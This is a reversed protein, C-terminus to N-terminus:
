AFVGAAAAPIAVAGAVPAAAAPVYYVEEGAAVREAIGQIGPLDASIRGQDRLAANFQPLVAYALEVMSVVAPSAPRSNDLVRNLMSEIKWSFEGLVSAGVLRGSGKLTHFVRRIPRLTEPNTPAARWVPLLQG